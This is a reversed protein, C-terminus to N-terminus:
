GNVAWLTENLKMEFLAIGIPYSSTFVHHLTNLLVLNVATPRANAVRLEVTIDLQFSKCGNSCTM